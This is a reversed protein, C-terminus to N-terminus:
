SNRHQSPTLLKTLRRAGVSLIVLKRGPGENLLTTPPCFTDRAGGTKVFQPGTNYGRDCNVNAQRELPCSDSSDTAILVIASPDSRAAFIMATRALTTRMAAISGSQALAFTTARRTSVLM